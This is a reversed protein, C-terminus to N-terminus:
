DVGNLRVETLYITINDKWRHRPRGLKRKRGAKSVLIRIGYTNQEMRAVHMAWTIIRSKTVWPVEYIEKSVEESGCKAEM